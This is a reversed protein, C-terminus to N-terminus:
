RLQNVNNLWQNLSVFLWIKLWSISKDGKKYQNWYECVIGAKFVSRENLEKINFEVLTKLENRIWSDWPFAFGKKPRNVIEMPLMADLAEVLLQKPYAGKKFKDPIFMTYEILEHDFFPERVELSNAMSFQDTDKLLTNLTYNSLEAVSMQSLLPLNEFREVSGHHYDTKLPMLNSIEAESFVQRILPYYTNINLKEARLLLRIRELNPYKSFTVSLMKERMTLPIQWIGKFQNVKLWRSFSPYGAFLEDGGIGSLAVKTGDQAIAKSVVYTNVGDGSPSDMAILANPLERLFDDTKLIIRHHNTNYKRAIVEAYQSEDYKKDEFGINFTDIKDRFQSMIAVVASSDIGGSLFAAVPVDSVMRREISQYLLSKVEQKVEEYSGYNRSSEISDFSWYKESVVGTNSVKMFSGPPLQNIDTYLTNSSGVSQTSLFCHLANYNINCRSKKTKVIARIESAFLFTETNNLFYLPKVGIRDRAIFMEEKEIDYIAFAFMGAMKNLFSVGWKLYGALVVETDSKTKFAYDALTKRLEKYNYIEGNFVIAYRNLSDFMPQNAQVSLDIISLRNHGLCVKSSEFYGTNEPGRHNMSESMLRITSPDCKGGYSFVGAVGCM